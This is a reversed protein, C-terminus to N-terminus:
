TKLRAPGHLILRNVKGWACHKSITALLHDYNGSMADDIVTKIEEASWNEKQAQKSFAGMIAFANGDIGVLNLNVTKM